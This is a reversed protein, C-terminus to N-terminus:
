ADPTRDDRNGQKTAGFHDTVARTLVSFPRYAYYLWILADPLRLAYWDEDRHIMHGIEHALYPMSQRLSLGYLVQQLPNALKAAAREQVSQRLAWTALRRATRNQAAQALVTPPLALGTVAHVFLLGSDFLQAIGAAAAHRRQRELDATSAARYVAVLDAIWKWRDWQHRAGHTSLQLALDDRGLVAMTADPVALEERNQWLTDFDPAFLHPNRDWRWHCEIVTGSSCHVFRRDKHYRALIAAQRPSLPPPTTCPVCGAGLLLADMRAADDPHVMLDLDFAERLFPDGYLQLSLTVGKLVLVRIGERRALGGLRSLLRLQAIAKLSCDREAAEIAERVAPPVGPWGAQRLAAAMMPRIKHQWAIVPIKSWEIDQFPVESWNRVARPSWDAALIAKVLRNEATWEVADTLLASMDFYGASSDLNAHNPM